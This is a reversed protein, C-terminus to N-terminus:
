LYKISGGGGCVILLIFAPPLSVAFSPYVAADSVKNKDEPYRSFNTIKVRM